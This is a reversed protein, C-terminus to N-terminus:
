NVIKVSSRKILNMEFKEIIQINPNETIKELLNMVSITMEELPNGVSTLDYAKFGSFPVNDFGTVSFDEPVSLGYEIRAADIVAMAMIDSTCFVADPVESYNLFKKALEYAANYSYETIYVQFPELNLEKMKKLFGNRRDSEQDDSICIIKKNNNEVLYEVLNQAAMNGDCYVSSLNSNKIFRDFLIIPIQINSYYDLINSSTASATLIIADVRQESVRNITEEISLKQNVVYFLVKRGSKQIKETLKKLAEEFIYSKKEGLVIAVSNTKNSNLSRAIGNPFYGLEKAAAKVKLVTEEKVKGEWKPNYIRSVTVPSVGALAAVDKLTAFRNQKDVKKM